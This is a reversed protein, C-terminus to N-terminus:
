SSTELLRLSREVEEPIVRRERIVWPLGRMAAVLAPVAHRNGVTLKLTHRAARALPRRLWASWLQNRLEHTGQWSRPGREPEHHAVVEDVYALGWGAAAMDVALLQEEGGFGYRAHFGGCELVASRRAVAGCALFGLVPPGPLPIESRLPSDRMAECTPDLRGDPEVLIRAGLLGLRPYADFVGAARRLAEPAWWSDDDSFAVLPTDAAEVGLTRAASGIQRPSRIVKAVDAFREGIASATGDTSAHDVVVVPPRQALRELRSLTALIRQRRNRTAIVITPLPSQRDSGEVRDAGPSVQSM